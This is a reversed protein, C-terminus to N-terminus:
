QFYKGDNLYLEQLNLLNRFTSPLTKFDNGSLDLIKLNKLNGIGSPIQKLQDNRLSLYQLNSFKSWITDSTPIKQNNLNLRYVNEPNLLAEELNLFVKNTQASDLKSQAKVSNFQIALVLLFLISCKIM